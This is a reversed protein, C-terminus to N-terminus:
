AAADVPQDMLGALAIARVESMTEALIVKRLALRMASDREAKRDRRRAQREAESMPEGYIAKRGVKAM